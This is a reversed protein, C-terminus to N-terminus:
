LDVFNLFLNNHIDVLFLVVAGVTLDGVHLRDVVLAAVFVPQFTGIHVAFVVGYLVEAFLDPLRIKEPVYVRQGGVGANLQADCLAVQDGDEHRRGYLADRREIGEVLDADDDIEDM